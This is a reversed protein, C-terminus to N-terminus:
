AGGIVLTSVVTKDTTSIQNKQIHLGQQNLARSFSELSSLQDAQCKLTLQGSQYSLSQIVVKQNQRLTSGVKGLVHMFKDGKGAQILAHLKREILNKSNETYASNPFVKQYAETLQSIVQKNKVSYHVYQVLQGAFLVAFFVVCSSVAVKWPQRFLSMKAKPKFKRQLLNIPFQLTMLVEDVMSEIPVEKLTAQQSLSNKLEESLGACVYEEPRQVDEQNFFLDLFPELNQIPVTFGSTLGTRVLASEGQVCLSFTSLENPLSLFDPLIAAPRLGYLDLQQNYADLTKKDVVAVPTLGEANIQGSFFYHDGIDGVVQDEVAFPLAKALEQRRMKPMEVHTLLVDQGPLLVVLVEDAELLPLQEFSAFGENSIIQASESIRLWSLEQETRIQLIVIKSKDVM